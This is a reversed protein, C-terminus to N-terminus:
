SLKLLKVYLLIQNKPKMTRIKICVGKKQPCGVLATSRIKHHKPARSKKQVLQNLTVM